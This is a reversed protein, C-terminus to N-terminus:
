AFTDISPIPLALLGLHMSELPSLHNDVLRPIYCSVMFASSLLLLLAFDLCFLVVVASTMLISQKESDGIM